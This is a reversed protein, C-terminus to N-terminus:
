AKWSKSPSIDKLEFYDTPIALEAIVGTCVKDEKATAINSQIHSM